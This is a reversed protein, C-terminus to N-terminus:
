AAEPDGLRLRLESAVEDLRDPCRLVLGRRRRLAPNRGRGLLEFGDTLPQWGGFGDWDRSRSRLPNSLHVGTDSLRFRTPLLGDRVSALLLLAGVFGILPDVAVAAGTSVLVIAAALAARAPRRRAPWDTWTIM